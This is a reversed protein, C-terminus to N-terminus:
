PDPWVRWFANRKQAFRQTVKGLQTGNVGFALTTKGCLGGQPPAVDKHSDKAVLIPFLSAGRKEFYFSYHKIINFYVQHAPKERVTAPRTKLAM